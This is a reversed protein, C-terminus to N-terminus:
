KKSFVFKNMLFYSLVALPLVLIAQTFIKNNIKLFIVEFLCINLIYIFLYCILFRPLLHLSFQSFVYHGTSFFNFLTGLIMSFLLAIPVPSDLFICASYVGFGFLTNIGGVVLFRIFRLFSPSCQYKVMEFIRMLQCCILLGVM